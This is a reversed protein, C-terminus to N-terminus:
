HLAQAHALAQGVGESERHGVIVPARAAIGQGHSDVAGVVRRHQGGCGHVDSFVAGDGTTRQRLGRIHIHMIHDTKRGQAIRRAAVACEAHISVTLIGIDQVICQRRYLPQARAFAQGVRECHRDRIVM